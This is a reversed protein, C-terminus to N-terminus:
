QAAIYIAATIVLIIAIGSILPVLRSVRPNYSSVSEFESIINPVLLPSGEYLVVSRKWIPDFKGKFQAVGAFSYYREGLRKAIRVLRGTGEKNEIHSLPALGLNFVHIDEQHLKLLIESVLYHMGVSPLSSTFRLHDISAISPTYSPMLSVYAIWADGQKLVFVRSARLYEASFQGMFFTYEDRGRKLWEDSIHKLRRLASTDVSTLEEVVLKERKAKNRVYRFHKDGLTQDIFESVDVHAEKGITLQHFENSTTKYLKAIKETPMIVSISWGREHCYSVFARILEAFEYPNGNPDGLVFLTRRVPLFTICSLRSLSFFYRKPQPWVKFYDDAGAPYERLLMELRRRDWPTSPQRIKIPQILLGLVLVVLGFGVADLSAIFFQAAHTPAAILEDPLIMTEFTETIGYLLTPHAYHFATPGLIVFGVAGYLFAAGGVSLLVGLSYWNGSMKSRVPPQTYLPILSALTSMILLLMLIVSGTFHHFLNYLGFLLTTILLLTAIYLTTRFGRTITIGIYIFLLGLLPAVLLEGGKYLDHLLSLHFIHVFPGFLIFGGILLLLVAALRSWKEPTM